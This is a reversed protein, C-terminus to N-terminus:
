GGTQRALADFSAMELERLQEIAEPSSESGSPPTMLELDFKTRDEASLNKAFFWYIM